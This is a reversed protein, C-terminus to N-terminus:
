EGGKLEDVRARLADLGQQLRSIQVNLADVDQEADAEVTPWPGPAGRWGRAGFGRRWSGRRGFMPRRGYGPGWTMDSERQLAQDMQVEDGCDGMGRGTRPGCSVPGTRDGRPM